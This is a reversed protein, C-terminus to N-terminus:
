RTGRTLREAPRESAEAAVAAKPTRAMVGVVWAGAALALPMLLTGVASLRGGIVEDRSLKGFRMLMYTWDHALPDDEGGWPSVRPLIQARADAAYVGADVFSTGLWFLAVTVAYVDRQRWFLGAVLVPMALQFLTGGAVTWLRNGSWSLAAHGAEHVILTAAGFPNRVYSPPEGGLFGLWIWLLWALVFARPLWPHEAASAEVAARIRSM